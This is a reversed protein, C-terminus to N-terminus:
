PRRASTGIPKSFDSVTFFAHNATKSGEDPLMSWFLGMADAGRYSGSLPAQTSLNIRGRADSRWTASSRWILGDQARSTASVVVPVNARLGEIVIGLRQDMLANAPTVTIRAAGVAPWAALALWALILAAAIKM